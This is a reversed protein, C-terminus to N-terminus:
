NIHCLNFCREYNVKERKAAEDKIQKIEKNLNVMECEPSHLANCRERWYASCLEVAERVLIKDHKSFKIRELPLTVWSKIVVGRFFERMGLVQQNTWFISERNFQKRVDKIIKNVIKREYASAKLKKVEYNLKKNLQNVWDDRKTKM